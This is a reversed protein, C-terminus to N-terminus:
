GYVIERSGGKHYYDLQARPRTLYSHHYLPQLRRLISQPSGDLLSVIHSSRLFRHRHILSIIRRDRDTIQLLKTQSARTFRPLRSSMNSDYPFQPEEPPPSGQRSACFFGRWFQLPNLATTLNIPVTMRLKPNKQSLPLG